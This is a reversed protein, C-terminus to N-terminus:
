AEVEVYEVRSSPEPIPLGDEALGDLHMRIAERISKEVEAATSGTAVCGPLDPVYAALNTGADEVVIAYRKLRPKMAGLGGTQCHEGAYRAAGYSEAQGRPDGAGPNENQNLDTPWSLPEAPGGAVFAVWRGDRAARRFFERLQRFGSEALEFEGPQPEHDCSQPDIAEYRSRFGAESVGEAFTAAERVDAPDLLNVIWEVGGDEREVWYADTSGLVCLHGATFGGDLAGDTLCRHILPWTQDTMVIWGGAHLERFREDLSDIFARLQDASARDLHDPDVWEAPIAYHVGRGCRRSEEGSLLFV